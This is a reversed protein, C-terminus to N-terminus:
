SDVKGYYVAIEKVIKHKLAEEVSVRHTNCYRDVYLKFDANSNYFVMM